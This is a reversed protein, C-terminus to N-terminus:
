SSIGILGFPPQWARSLSMDNSSVWCQCRIRFVEPPQPPREADTSDVALVGTGRKHCPLALIKAIHSHRHLLIDTCLTQDRPLADCFTIAQLKNTQKRRESEINM